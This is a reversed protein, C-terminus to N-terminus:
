LIIKFHCMTKSFNEFLISVIYVPQVFSYASHTSDVTERAKEFNNVMQEVSYTLLRKLFAKQKAVQIEIIVQSGNDLKALVDVETYFIGSEGLDNETRRFQKGDLIELDKVDLGLVAHIM